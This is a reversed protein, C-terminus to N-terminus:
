IFVVFVITSPTSFTLTPLNYIYISPTFSPTASMSHVEQNNNRKGCCTQDLLKLIVNVPLTELFTEKKM